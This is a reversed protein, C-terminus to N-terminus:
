DVRKGILSIEGRFTSVEVLINFQSGDNLKRYVSENWDEEFFIGKVRKNSPDSLEFRLMKQGKKSTFKEIAHCKVNEIWVLQEFYKELQEVPVTPFQLVVEDSKQVNQTQLTISSIDLPIIQPEGRYEDLIGIITIVDAEQPTFPLKGLSPFFSVSFEGETGQLRLFTMGQQNVWSSTVLGHAKVLSKNESSVLLPKPEGNYDIVESLNPSYIKGMQWILCTLCLFTTVIIYSSRPDENGRNDRKM